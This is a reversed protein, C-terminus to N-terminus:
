TTSLVYGTVLFKWGGASSSVTLEEGPKIVQRGQWRYTVNTRTFPRDLSFIPIGTVDGLFFDFGPWGESREFGRATMCIDTVVWQDPGAGVPFSM